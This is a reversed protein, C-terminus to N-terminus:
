STATHFFSVRSPMCKKGGGKAFAKSCTRILRLTASESKKVFSVDFAPPMERDFYSKECEILSENASEAMHVLGHLGCSFVLISGADTKEDESLDDYNEYVIPLIESRTQEILEGLKIETAARDSVRAVINALIQRSKESNKSHCAQDIDSLIEQFTSLVNMAAKTEIERLGLVWEKQIVVIYAKWGNILNQRRM